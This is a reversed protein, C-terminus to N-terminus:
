EQDAELSKDSDRPDRKMEASMEIGSKDTRVTSRFFRPHKRLIM